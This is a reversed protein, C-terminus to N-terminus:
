FGSYSCALIHVAVFYYYKEIISNAIIVVFSLDTKKNVLFHFLYVIELRCLFKLVKCGSSFDCFPFKQLM